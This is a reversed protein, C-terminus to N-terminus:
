GPNQQTFKNRRLRATMIGEISRYKAVTRRAVNYGRDNLIEAIKQDSLAENENQVIKVLESRIHLSRDFFKTFPIIRKNPLQILKGSVARSITSEHVGLTKAVSARTIPVLYKDGEMIFNRQLKIILRVLRILTNNRQNLCKILLNAKEYDTEWKEKNESLSKKIEQRYLPNLQLLGSYPAIIEAIIKNTSSSPSMLIIDPSYTINHRPQSVRKNGWHTRAPYPNLNDSIYRATELAENTSIGLLKGLEYYSHRGLLDLGNQIATSAFPPVQQTESLVELQVLLADEPSNTAVGIPDSRQIQELLKNVKTLSVHHYQSIEIPNSTLFGDEDLSSLIHTAIVIEERSLDPAIQRLVYNSLEEPAAITDEIHDNEDNYNPSSYSNFDSRPSIFIVPTNDSTEMKAACFTCKSSKRILRGCSPCKTVTAVQLAPNTSLETEITHKLDINGLLLLSMTQALHATTMPRLHQSQTIANSQSLM